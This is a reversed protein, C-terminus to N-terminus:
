AADGQSTLHASLPWPRAAEFASIARLVAVDGHRPGTVQMGVPLGDVTGMPVSASPNGSFNTLYTMCWGILPDVPEGEISSPGVTDGDSRNRVPMAAVTPSVVLDYTAFAAHMEDYVHTRTQADRVLDDVRLAPVRSAWHLLQDPLGLAALEYGEDRLQGLGEHVGVATTRCWTDTLETHSHRWGFRVEEVEAGLSELALLAEHFVQVIGREVPFLGFDPTFGIRVGQLSQQGLHEAFRPPATGTSSPDRVDPRAMATLALACDETSRTIPGEYLFLSPGFANPRTVFPITGPSPQFGVAGCWAAPIRISGGGDTAGAVPVIGGAVAAASGGSSGGANHDLSHPNRTPGTVANDTTGRFGFAPSNTQGVVIAGAAEMAAPFTSWGTARRELLGPVQGLTAPWGPKHGFLDKMLTPVGALVGVDEGAGIRRELDRARTTAEDRAVFTVANLVPDLRDLRALTADLVEVPSVARSRVARAISAAGADLLEDM